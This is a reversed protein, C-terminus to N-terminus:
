SVSAIRQAAMLFATARAYRNESLELWDSPQIVGEFADIRM